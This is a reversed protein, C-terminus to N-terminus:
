GESLATTATSDAFVNALIHYQYPVHLASSYEGAALSNREV